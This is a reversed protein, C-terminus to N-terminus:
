ETRLLAPQSKGALYDARRTGHSQIEDLSKGGLAEVIFREMRPTLAEIKGTREIRM